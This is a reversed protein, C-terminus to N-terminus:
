RLNLPKLCCIRMAKCNQLECPQFLDQQTLILISAPNAPNQLTWLVIQKSAKQLKQLNDANRLEHDGEGFGEQTAM